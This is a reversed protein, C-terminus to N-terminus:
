SCFPGAPIDFQRSALLAPILLKPDGGVPTRSAAALINLALAALGALWKPVGHAALTCATCRKPEIFGDCPQEGFLM